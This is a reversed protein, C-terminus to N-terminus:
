DTHTHINTLYGTRRITCHLRQPRSFCCKNLRLPNSVTEGWMCLIGATHTHTLIDVSTSGSGYNHPDQSNGQINSHKHKITDGGVILSVRFQMTVSLLCQWYITTCVWGENNFRGLRTGLCCTEQHTLPRTFWTSNRPSIVPIYYVSLPHTDCLTNPWM